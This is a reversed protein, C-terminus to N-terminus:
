MRTMISILLLYLVTYMIGDRKEIKINLGRDGIIALIVIILCLLRIITKEM